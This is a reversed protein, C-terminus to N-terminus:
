QLTEQKLADNIGTPVLYIFIQKGFPFATAFRTQGSTNNNPYIIKSRTDVRWQGDIRPQEIVIALQPIPSSSGYIEVFANMAKALPLEAGFIKLAGIETEQQSQQNKVSATIWSAAEGDIKKQRLFYTYHGAQWAFKRRVSLYNNENDSAFFHTGDTGSAQELPIPSNDASWKSFIAISGMSLLRQDTKARWGNGRTQVGGYVATDGIKALGLPAIYLDLQQPLQGIVHFDIAIEKFSPTAQASDWWIDVIHWPYRPPKTNSNLTQAQAQTAVLGCSLLLILLIHRLLATWNNPM